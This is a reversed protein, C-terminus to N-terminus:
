LCENHTYFIFFLYILIYPLAGNFHSRRVVSEDIVHDHTRRTRLYERETLSVMSKGVPVGDVTTDSCRLHRHCNIRKTM